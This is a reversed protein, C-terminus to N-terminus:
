IDYDGQIMQKLRNLTEEYDKDLLYVSIILEKIHSPMFGETDKIMQFISSKDVVAEMLHRIYTTRDKIDFAKIEIIEDFRSPRNKLRDPIENIYNTTAVHIIDEFQMQGDLISLLESEGYKIFLSDLDEYLCILQREPEIIRLRQIAKIALDPDDIIFVLGNRNILEELLLNITSSKGGGPQGYLLIGRKYLQGFLQYKEKISWFKEITKIIEDTKSDQFRILSDTVINIGCYLIEGANNVRIVYVGSPLPLTTKGGLSFVGDGRYAWSNEFGELSNIWAKLNNKEIKIDM